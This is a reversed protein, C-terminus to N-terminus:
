NLSYELQYDNTDSLYLEMNIEEANKCGMAQYFDITEKSSAACIYLKDAGFNKGQESLLMFLQKGIGKRRMEKTIFMQDLLVYKYKIGFIQSNISGIAILIGKENFVGIVKGDLTITDKLSNLHMEYGSPWSPDYYDITVLSRIGNVERWAKNIYTFADIENIRECEELLLDRYIM